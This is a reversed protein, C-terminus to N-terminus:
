TSPVQFRLVQNLELSGLAFVLGVQISNPDMRALSPAISTCAPETVATPLLSHVCGLVAESQPSTCTRLAFGQGLANHRRWRLIDCPTSPALWLFQNPSRPLAPALYRPNPSVPACDLCVCGLCTV